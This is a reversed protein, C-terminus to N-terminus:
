STLLRNAIIRHTPPHSQISNTGTFGVTALKSQLSISSIKQHLYGDSDGHIDNLLKIKINSDEGNFSVEGNLDSSWAGVGHM